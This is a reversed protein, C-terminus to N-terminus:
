KGHSVRLIKADEKSIEIEAVGGMKGKPLSGEVQWIGNTLVAKYPKESKIEKEGYIPSWVALAIAIATKEDPVFGAEPKYSYKQDDAIAGAIAMLLVIIVFVNIKM